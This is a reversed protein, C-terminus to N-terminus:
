KILREIEEVEKPINKSLVECGNSTILVNDEIRIGIGEENVYIGPEVTFVMGEEFSERLMRVYIDHTDLGLFHGISHPYYKHIIKKDKTYQKQTILGLGILEKAMFENSKEVLDVFKLGPKMLKITAKQVRLVAEYVDRQRKTFKSKVPFTRTIDTKYNFLESGSDILILDDKSFETDNKVYHLTCANVGVACIPQYAHRAGSKIYNYTLIADVERENKMTKISKMVHLFAFRTIKMAERIVGVEEKSKILRLEVLNNVLNIFKKGKVKRRLNKLYTVYERLNFDYNVCNFYNITEVKNCLNLIVKDFDKMDRLELIGSIKKVEEKTINKGLFAEKIKDKKEIFLITKCKGQKNKYMVLRCNKEELGTLYYFNSEQFDFYIEDGKKKIDGSFLIFITGKKMSSYLNKRNLTFFSSKLM